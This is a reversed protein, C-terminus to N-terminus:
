KKVPLEQKQMSIMRADSASGDASLPEVYLRLDLASDEPSPQPDINGANTNDILLYYFDETVVVKGTNLTGSLTDELDPYILLFSSHQETEAEALM